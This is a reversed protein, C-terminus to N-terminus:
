IIIWNHINKSGHLRGLVYIISQTNSNKIYSNLLVLDKEKLLKNAGLLNVERIESIKM